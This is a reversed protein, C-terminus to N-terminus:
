LTVGYQGKNTLLDWLQPKKELVGSLLKSVKIICPKRKGHYEVVPGIGTFNIGLTSLFRLLTPEMVAYWYDIGNEESARILCAILALTIHPFTRREEKAVKEVYYEQMGTSSNVKDYKRRKFEKSVCFKSVEALKNRSVDELVEAKDITTNVEIPFLKKKSVCFRSVEAIKNRPVDKLLELNDITSNVEIPFLKESDLASPLILRTTAAYANSKRHCILYHISNSDYEDNEIEGPHQLPDEFCTENCYVQFRLKYVERRLEDSCAPIMKFYQNFAALITQEM